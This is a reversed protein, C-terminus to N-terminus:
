EIVLKANVPFVPKNAGYELYTGTVFDVVPFQTPTATVRTAENGPKIKIFVPADIDGHFCFPVGSAITGLCLTYGATRHDEVKM